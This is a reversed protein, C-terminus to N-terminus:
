AGMREGRLQLVAEFVNNLCFDPFLPLITKCSHRSIIPPTQFTAPEAERLQLAIIQSNFDAAIAAFVRKKEERTFAARKERRKDERWQSVSMRGFTEQPKM